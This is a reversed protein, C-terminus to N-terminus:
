PEWFWCNAGMSLCMAAIVFGIVAGTIAAGPGFIAAFLFAGYVTSIFLREVSKFLDDLFSQTSEEEGYCNALNDAWIEIKPLYYISADIAATLNEKEQHSLNPNNRIIDKYRNMEYEISDVIEELNGNNRSEFHEIVESITDKVKQFYDNYIGNLQNSDTTLTDHYQNFNEEFEEPNTEHHEKGHQIVDSVIKSSDPCDDESKLQHKISSKEEPNLNPKPKEEKSCSFIMSSIGLLFVLFKAKQLKMLRDKISNLLYITNNLM